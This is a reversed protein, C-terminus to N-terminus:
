RTLASSIPHAMLLANIPATDADLAQMAELYIEFHSLPRHQYEDSEEGLVIENIFRRSAAHRSPVWPVDVCTLSRQLAKLLSMFDWVAFVHSEMFLRLQQESQIAAYIPHSALRKRLPALRSELRELPALAASPALPASTSM